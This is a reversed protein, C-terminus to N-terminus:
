RNKITSIVHHYNVIAKEEEPTIETFYYPYNRYANVRVTCPQIDNFMHMHTIPEIYEGNFDYYFGFEDIPKNDEFVVSVLEGPKIGYVAKDSVNMFVKNESM